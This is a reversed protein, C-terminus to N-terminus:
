SPSSSRSRPSPARDRAAAGRLGAGRRLAHRRSPAARDRRKPLAQDLHGRWRAPNSVDESRLGELKAFDLVAEIRGRLRSATEPKTKWLPQLVALVDATKIADVPLPRAGQRRRPPHAALRSASDPKRWQSARAAICREAVATFTAAVAPRRASKPDEGAALLARAEAAKARPRRSPSMAPPASASKPRSAAGAISSPGASPAPRRFRSTSTAATAMAVPSPSRRSPAPKSATIPSVRTAM